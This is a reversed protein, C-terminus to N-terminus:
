DSVQGMLERLSKHGFNRVDDSCYDAPGHVVKLLMQEVPDSLLTAPYPVLCCISTLCIQQQPLKQKTVQVLLISFTKRRKNIIKLFTNTGVKACWCPLRHPNEQCTNEGSNEDNALHSSNTFFCVHSIPPIVASPM